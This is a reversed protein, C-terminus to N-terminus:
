KNNNSCLVNLTQLDSATLAANEGFNLRYMISAHDEIHELGLAHGLEHAIVRVLKNYDTFQYVNIETASNSEQYVGQNFEQQLLPVNNYSKVDLNLDRALRNLREAATNIQEALNNLQIRERDLDALDEQIQTKLKTLKAYENQPAGGKGNWFEVQQNYDQRLKEFTTLDKEYTASLKDYQSKLADYDQKLSNYTDTSVKIESDLRKLVDTQQQRSDYILNIQLKGNQELEFLNKGSPGEWVEEASAVAATFDERSLGFREDVAGVKYKIPKACPTPKANFRYFVGIAFVLM